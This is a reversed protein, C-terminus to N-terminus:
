AAAKQNMRDELRRLGGGSFLRLVLRKCTLDNLVKAPDAERLLGAVVSKLHARKDDWEEGWVGLVDYRCLLAEALWLKAIVGNKQIDAAWNKQSQQNNYEWDKDAQEKEKPTREKKTSTPDAKEKRLDYLGAWNNAIAQEVVAAQDAGYRSLKIALPQLSVDKYAQKKVKKYALWRDFAEHDLGPVDM